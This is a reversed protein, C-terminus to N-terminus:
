NSLNQCAKQFAAIPMTGCIDTLQEQPLSQLWFTIEDIMASTPALLLQILQLITQDDVAYGTHDILQKLGLPSSPLQFFSTLPQSPPSVQQFSSAPPIDHKNAEITVEHEESSAVSRVNRTGSMNNLQDLLSSVQALANQTESDSAHVPDFETTDSNGSIYDMSPSLQGGLGAAPNAAGLIGMLGSLGGGMGSLGLAGPIGLAGFGPFQNSLSQVNGALAGIGNPGGLAGGANLWTLPNFLTLISGLLGAGSGQGVLPSPLFSQLPSLGGLSGGFLLHEPAAAQYVPPTVDRKVSGEGIAVHVICFVVLISAIREM